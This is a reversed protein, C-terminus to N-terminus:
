ESVPSRTGPKREGVDVQVPENLLAVEVHDKEGPGAVASGAYEAGHVEFPSVGLDVRFFTFIRGTHFLKEFLEGKGPSDATVASRFRGARDMFTAFKSVHEGM